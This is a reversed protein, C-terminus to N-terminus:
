ALMEFVAFFSGYDGAGGCSVPYPLRGYGRAALERCGALVRERYISRSVEPGPRFGPETLMRRVAERLERREGDLRATMTQPDFTPAAAEPAAEPHPVGLLRRAAEEGPLGLAEALAALAAREPEALAHGARRALEAGLTALDPPPNEAFADAS